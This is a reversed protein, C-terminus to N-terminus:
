NDYRLYMFTVVVLLLMGLLFIAILRLMYTGALVDLQKCPVVTVMM